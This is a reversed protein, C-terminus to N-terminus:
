STRFRSRALGSEGAVRRLSRSAARPRSREPRQPFVVAFLDNWRAPEQSFKRKYYDLQGTESGGLNAYAIGMLSLEDMLRLLMAESLGPYLRSAISAYVGVSVSDVQEYAFLGVPQRNVFPVFHGVPLGEHRSTLIDLMNSYSEAGENEGGFHRKLMLKVPEIDTRDLTRLDLTAAHKDCQRLKSRLRQADKGQRISLLRVDEVRVIREPFTDDDKPALPDWGRKGGDVICAGMSMAQDALEARLSPTAKKVFMHSRRSTGPVIDCIDRLFDSPVRGIPRVLVLHGRHSGLGVFFESTRYYAGLKGHPHRCAQTFYLWADSYVAAGSTQPFLERLWAYDNNTFQKFM